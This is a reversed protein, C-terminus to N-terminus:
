KVFLMECQRRPLFVFRKLLPQDEAWGRFPGAVFTSWHMGDNRFHYGVRRGARDVELVEMAGLKGRLEERDEPPLPRFEQEGIVFTGADSNLMYAWRGDKTQSAMHEGAHLDFGFTQGCYLAPRPAAPQAVAPAALTLALLPLWIPRRM